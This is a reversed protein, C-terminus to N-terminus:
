IEQNKKKDSEAEAIIRKIVKLADEHNGQEHLVELSYLVTLLELKTM